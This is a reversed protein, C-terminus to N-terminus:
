FRLTMGGITLKEDLARFGANITVTYVSLSNLEGIGYGDAM